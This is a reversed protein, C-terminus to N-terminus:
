SAIEDLFVTPAEPDTEAPTLQKSCRIISYLACALIM